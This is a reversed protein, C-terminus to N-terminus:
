MKDLFCLFVSVSLLPLVTPDGAHAAGCWHSFLVLFLLLPFFFMKKNFMKLYIYLNYSISLLDLLYERSNDWLDENPKINWATVSQTELYELVKGFKAKFIDRQSNIGFRLKKLSILWIDFVKVFKNYSIQRGGVQDYCGKLRVCAFVTCHESTTGTNWSYM